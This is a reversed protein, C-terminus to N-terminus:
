NNLSLKSALEKIVEEGAKDAMDLENASSNGIVKVLLPPALNSRNRLELLLNREAWVTGIKGEYTWQVTGEFSDGGQGLIVGEEKMKNLIAFRVKEAQPGSLTVEQVHVGQLQRKKLSCGTVGLTFGILLASVLVWVSVKIRM